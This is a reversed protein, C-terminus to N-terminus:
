INSLSLNGKLFFFSHLPLLGLYFGKKLVYLSGLQHLLVRDEKVVVRDCLRWELTDSVKGVFRGKQM